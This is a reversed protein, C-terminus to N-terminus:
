ESDILEVGIEISRENRCADMIFGSIANSYSFLLCFALITVGNWTDTFVDATRDQLQGFGGM